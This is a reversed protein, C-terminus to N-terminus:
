WSIITHTWLPCCLQKWKMQFGKKEFLLFPCGKLPPLYFGWLTLVGPSFYFSPSFCCLFSIRIVPLSTACGVWVFNCFHFSTPQPIPPSGLFLPSLASSAPVVPTTSYPMAQDPLPSCICLPFPVCLTPDSRPQLHPLYFLLRSSWVPSVRILKWLSAPPIFSFNFSLARKERVDVDAQNNESDDHILSLRHTMQLRLKFHPSFHQLDDEM